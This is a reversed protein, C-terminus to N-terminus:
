GTQYKPLPELPNDDFYGEERDRAGARGGFAYEYVSTPTPLSNYETAFAALRRYVLLTAAKGWAPPSTLVYELEVADLFPLALAIRNRSEAVSALDSARIVARVALLWHKGDRVLASVIDRDLVPQRGPKVPTRRITAKAERFTTLPADNEYPVRAPREREAEERENEAAQEAILRGLVALNGFDQLPTRGIYELILRATRLPSPLPAYRECPYSMVRWVTRGRWKNTQGGWRTTYVVQQRAWLPSAKALARYWTGM